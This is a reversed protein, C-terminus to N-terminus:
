YRPSVDRFPATLTPRGRTAAGTAKPDAIVRYAVPLIQLRKDGVCGFDHTCKEANTRKRTSSKRRRRESRQRSEPREGAVTPRLYHTVRLKPKPGARSLRKGVGTYRALKELSWRCGAENDEPRIGSPIHECLITVETGGDRGEFTVV